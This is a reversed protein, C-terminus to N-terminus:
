VLKRHGRYHIFPVVFDSQRRKKYWEESLCGDRTKAVVKFYEKTDLREKLLRGADFKRQNSSYTLSILCIFHRQLQTSAVPSNELVCFDSRLAKKEAQEKPDCDGRGGFYPSCIELGQHQFNIVM